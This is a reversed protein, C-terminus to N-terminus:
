EKKGQEFWNKEAAIMAQEEIEGKWTWSLKLWAQQRVANAVKADIYAKAKQREVSLAREILLEIERETWGNM